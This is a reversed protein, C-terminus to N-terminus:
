TASAHEIISSYCSTCYLTFLMVDHFFVAVFEEGCHLQKFITKKVRREISIRNPVSTTTPSNSTGKEAALSFGYCGFPKMFYKSRFYHLINQTKATFNLPYLSKKRKNQNSIGDGNSSVLTNDFKCFFSALYVQLNM